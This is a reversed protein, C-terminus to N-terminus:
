EAGGIRTAGQLPAVQDPIRRVDAGEGVSLDRVTLGGLATTRAADLKDLLPQVDAARNGLRVAEMTGEGARRVIDLIDALLTADPAQAPLFTPPQDNTRVLVAGNELLTLVSDVVDQPLQMQNALSEATVPHDLGYFARGVARLALLAIADRQRHSLVPPGYQGGIYNPNQTYFAVSAGLLLILWGLYLWILLLILTAFGSYIATYQGSSVVFSAFAWGITQWLIGAFVGGALAPMIRVRTNPLFVYLFTFAVVILVFPVLRAAVAVLKGVPEIATLEGIMPAAVLSAMIGVASFVLVPGILIVTIYSTFRQALPRNHTIRWSFNFAREIKQMLSVVTLVLFGLGLAGLVGVNVNEVFGIVQATVEPGKEGLAAFLELLTPELQNHYGFGKLISFSLALLPVLSLLTTYVLSMARMSVLGRRLDITVATIIRMVFVPTARWWPWDALNAERLLFVYLATVRAVITRSAESM